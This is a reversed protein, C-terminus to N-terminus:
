RNSKLNMIVLSWNKVEDYDETNLLLKVKDFTFDKRKLHNKKMSSM